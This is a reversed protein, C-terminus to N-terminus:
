PYDCVTAVVSHDHAKCRTMSRCPPFHVHLLTSDFSLVLSVLTFLSGVDVYRFRQSTGAGFPAAAEDWDPGMGDLMQINKVMARFSAEFNAKLIVLFLM